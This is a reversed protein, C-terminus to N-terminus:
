YLCILTLDVTELPNLVPIQSELSSCVFVNTCRLLQLVKPSFNKTLGEIQDFRVSHFSDLKAFCNELRGMQLYDFLHLTLLM